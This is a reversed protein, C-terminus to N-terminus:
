YTRRRSKVAVAVGAGGVLLAVVTFLVTGAAGTLPLQTVYKVNLVTATANATTNNVPQVQRLADPEFTILGEDTIKVNFTVRFNQAYGTPAQTEVVTYTGAALGAVKVLGDNETTFKKADNQNSVFSWAGDEAQKLFKGEANKVVFEAGALPKAENGEKGIKTFQFGYTKLVTKGEGSTGDKTTITAKNDVSGSLGNLADKTVTGQYSVVITKGALTTADAFDITTTTGSQANGEQTITYLDPDVTTHDGFQVTFASKAAIQLGKSATDTITFPYADWGAAAHPVDAAVTFDVTDGVKVSKGNVDVDNMRAFKLPEDTPNANKANFQGETTINGQGTTTDAAIRLNSLGNVTTAVVAPTGSTGAAGAGYLDVVSQDVDDGRLEIAELEDDCDQMYHNTHENRRKNREEQQKWRAICREVRKYGILKPDLGAERFIASPSEGANYRCMVEVKFRDTYRIHSPSVSKVAPLSALYAREKATFKGDIM